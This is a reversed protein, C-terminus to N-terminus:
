AKSVGGGSLLTSLRFGIEFLDFTGYNLLVVAYM